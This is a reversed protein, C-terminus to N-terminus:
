SVIIRYIDWIIVSCITILIIISDWFKNECQEKYFKVTQLIGWVAVLMGCFLLLLFAINFFPTIRLHALMFVCSVICYKLYSNTLNM